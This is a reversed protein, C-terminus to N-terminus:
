HLRAVDRERLHVALRVPVVEDKQLGEQGGGDVEAEGAGGEGREAEGAGPAEVEEGREVGGAEELEEDPVAAGSLEHVVPEVASKVLGGEEAAVVGVVVAGDDGLGDGAGDVREGLMEEVAKVKGDREDACPGAAAGGDAHKVDVEEAEVEHVVKPVDVGLNNGGGEVGGERREPVEEVVRAEVREMVRLEVDIVGEEHWQVVVDVSSCVISAHLQVGHGASALGRRWTLGLADEKRM